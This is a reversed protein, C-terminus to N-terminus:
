HHLIMELTDNKRKCKFPSLSTLLIYLIVGCGWMDCKDTFYGLIIEPAIYSITGILDACKVRSKTM